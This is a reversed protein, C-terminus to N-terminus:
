RLIKRAIERDAGCLHYATAEELPVWRIESHAAMRSPKGKTRCSYAVLSIFTDAYRFNVEAIKKGVEIELGLEELIERKLSNREGEGEKVKDGPFEWLV